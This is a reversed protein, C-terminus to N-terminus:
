KESVKEMKILATNLESIINKLDEKQRCSISVSSYEPPAYGDEDCFSPSYISINVNVRSVEGNAWKVEKTEVDLITSASKILM